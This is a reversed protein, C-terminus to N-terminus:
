TGYATSGTPNMELCVCSRATTQIKLNAENDISQALIGVHGYIYIKFPPNKENCYLTVSPIITINPQTLGPAQAGLSFGSFVCISRTQICLSVNHTHAHTSLTEPVRKKKEGEDDSRFDVGLDKDRQMRREKKRQHWKRNGTRYNNSKRSMETHGDFSSPVAGESYYLM